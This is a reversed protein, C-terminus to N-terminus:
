RQVIATTGRDLAPNRVSILGIWIQQLARACQSFLAPRTVLCCYCTMSNIAAAMDSANSGTRRSRSRVPTEPPSPRPSSERAKPCRRCPTAPASTGDDNFDAPAIRGSFRGTIPALAIRRIISDKKGEHRLIMERPTGPDVLVIHQAPRGLARRQHAMELAILGGACFSALFIPGEPYEALLQAVYAKAIGEIRHPTDRHDRLGPLEFVVMKRGKALGSLFDPRLFTYGGKGHVLFFPVTNAIAESKPLSSLIFEQEILRPTPFDLLAAIPFNKGLIETLLLALAEGNLSDGGLDFFDDDLGVASTSLAESIRRM